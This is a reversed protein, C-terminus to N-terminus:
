VACMQNEIFSFAISVFNFFNSLKSVKDQTLKTQSLPNDIFILPSVSGLFQLIFPKRHIIYLQKMIFEISRSVISDNKSERYMSFLTPMIHQYRLFFLIVVKLSCCKWFSGVYIPRLALGIKLKQIIAWYKIVLYNYCGALRIKDHRAKGQM